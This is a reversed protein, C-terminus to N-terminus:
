NWITPFTIDTGVPFLDISIFIVVVYRNGFGVRHFSTEIFRANTYIYSLVCLCRYLFIEISIIFLSNFIIWFFVIRKEIDQHHHLIFFWFM